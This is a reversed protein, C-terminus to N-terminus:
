PSDLYGFRGLAARGIAELRAVLEPDQTRWRGLSRPPVVEKVALTSADHELGLFDFLRKITSGPERCLDEFRIRLYRPGLAHEGYDAALVNLRSWLLMSRSAQSEHIEVPTLLTHGHKDLQFQNQSFAMDRGDRLVHLFRMLPFHRHFFPLLFISRPEKWGWVGLKPDHTGLHRGIVAALERAMAREADAPLGWSDRTMFLNIWRDSFIGLEPPDESGYLDVGIYMGGQRVVRAVVRTGSGGTAGIIVPTLTSLHPLHRAPMSTRVRRIVVGGAARMHEAFRGVRSRHRESLPFRM